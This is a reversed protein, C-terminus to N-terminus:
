AAVEFWEPIPRKSWVMKFRDQKTQYYEQYSRIPDDPHICQPENKM